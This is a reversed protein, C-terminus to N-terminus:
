TARCPGATGRKGVFPNQKMPCRPDPSPIHAWCTCVQRTCQPGPAPSPLGGGGGQSELQTITSVGQGIMSPSFYTNEHTDRFWVSHWLPMSALLDEGPTPVPATKRLLSFAKYSDRPYTKWPIPGLQLWPLYRGDLSVGYLQAWSDLHHKSLPPM